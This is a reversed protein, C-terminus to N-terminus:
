YRGSSQSGAGSAGKERWPYIDIIALPRADTRSILLAADRVSGRVPLFLLDEESLESKAIWHALRGNVDNSELLSLPQGRDIVENYGSSYPHWFDPRRDIDAAGELMVGVVLDSREKPDEPFRAIALYPSNGDPSILEDYRLMQRDLEAAAIVEFRDVAFVLFAPRDAHIPVAAAGIVALELALLIGLDLRLKPKGPRYVLTSLIPGLVLIVGALILLQRAAGDIHFHTGPYWFWRVVLALSAFLITSVFLRQAFFRLRSKKKTQADM